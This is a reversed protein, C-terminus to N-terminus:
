IVHIYNYKINLQKLQSQTTVSFSAFQQQFFKAPIYITTKETSLYPDVYM